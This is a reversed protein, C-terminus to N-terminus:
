PILTLDMIGDNHVGFPNLIMGGGGIKGSMGMFLVTEFNEMYIEGDLYLDFHDPRLKCFEKIAAIDYAKRGCCSKYYNASHAIKAPLSFNSNILQYRLNMQREMDPISEETEYDILHKVTDIRIIEGKVIYDLAADLDHIKLSLCLDNGSGNPIFAVPIRKKDKRHLMGNVVEHLTGDGGVAVLASYKEIDLEEAIDWTQLYRMSPLFEFQINAETLRHEILPRINRKKGSNPNYIIAIPKIYIM